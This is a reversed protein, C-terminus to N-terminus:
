LFASFSLVNGQLQVRSSCMLHKSAAPSDGAKSQDRGPPDLISFTVSIPIDQRGTLVGCIEIEGEGEIISYEAAEFGVDM